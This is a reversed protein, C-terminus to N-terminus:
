NKIKATTWLTAGCMDRADDYAEEISTGALVDHFQCFLIREWAEQFEKVPYQIGLLLDGISSWREASMLAHESRRNLRKVESHSTYCGRAHHQLDTDVTPFADEPLSERMAQYYRSLHSFLVPPNKTDDMFELIKAICAKTPGGGHNGVGYFLMLHRQDQVFYRPDQVEHFRKELREPRVDYCVPICGALVRSGDRSQWWFTTAEYKMELDPEPRMYTYTKFGLKKLIQPLTGPHGFTDPNFGETVTLGFHERIFRQGYLGQRVLSEGGPINCDPEVIWGGVINWRGEKVRAKVEEFIEPDTELIWKYFLTSSAIFCFDPTEKMRDLASRFTARVEEYGEQWRWLWVPDIHGHGIAHLTLTSSRSDNAM